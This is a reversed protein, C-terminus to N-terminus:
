KHGVSADSFLNFKCFILISGNVVMIHIVKNLHIFARHYDRVYIYYLALYNHIDINQPRAKLLLDYLQTVNEVPAQLAIFDYNLFALSHQLVIKPCRRDTIINQLEQISDKILM